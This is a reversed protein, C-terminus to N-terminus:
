TGSNSVEQTSEQSDTKCKVNELEKKLQENEEKVKDYEAFAHEIKQEIIKLQAICARIETIM